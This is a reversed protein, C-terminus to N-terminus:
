DSAKGQPAASGSTGSSEGTSASGPSLHSWDAPGEVVPKGQLSGDENKFMTDTRAEGAKHMAPSKAAQKDAAIAPAASLGIALAAGLLIHKMPKEKRHRASM